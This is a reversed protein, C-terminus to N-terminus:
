KVAPPVHFSALRLEELSGQFHRHVVFCSSPAARLFAFIVFAAFAEFTVLTVLPSSRVLFLKAFSPWRSPKKKKGRQCELNDWIYLTQCCKQCVRKACLAAMSGQQLDTAGHKLGISASASTM